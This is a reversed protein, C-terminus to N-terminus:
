DIQVFCALSHYSFCRDYNKEEELLRNELKFSVSLVLVRVFAYLYVYFQNCILFYFPSNGEAAVRLAKSTISVM